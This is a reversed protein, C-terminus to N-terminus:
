NDKKLLRVANVGFYFVVPLLFGSLFSYPDPKASLASAMGIVFFVLAALICFTSNKM